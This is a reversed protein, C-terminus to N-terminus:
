GGISLNRLDVVVGLRPEYRFLSLVSLKSNDLVVRGARSAHRRARFAAAASGLNHATISTVAFLAVESTGSSSRSSLTENQGVGLSMIQCDIPGPTCQGPGNLVAGPEVAFLVNKGGKLVGLEVLLPQSNNPLVALRSLPDITNLQGSPYSIALSVRYTETPGLAVVVPRTAPAVIPTPTSTPTGTTGSPPTSPTSGGSSKSSAKSSATGSSASSATSSATSATSVQGGGGGAFPDRPRGGLNSHGSVAQASVQPLVPGSPAPSPAKAVPPPPTTSKALLVPVAVLAVVLVLMAPWLRRSRLDALLDNLVNNM